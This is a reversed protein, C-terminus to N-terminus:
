KSLNGVVRYRTHTKKFVKKKQDIDNKIYSNLLDNNVKIFDSPDAFRYFGKIIKHFNKTHHKLVSVSTSVKKKNSMELFNKYVLAGKPNDFWDLVSFVHREFIHGKPVSKNYIFITQSKERVQNSLVFM